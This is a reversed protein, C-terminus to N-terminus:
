LFLIEFIKIKKFKFFFTKTDFIYKLFRKFYHHLCFKNIMNVKQKIWFGTLINNESYFSHHGFDLKKKNLWKNKCLTNIPPKIIPLNSYNM